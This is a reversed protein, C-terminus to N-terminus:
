AGGTAQPKFFVTMMGDITIEGLVKKVEGHAPCETEYYKMDEMSAFETKNVFTYGETRPGDEAPGAVMSLIYPSGNRQNDAAMKRCQELFRQQDEAKPMKFMTVRHVRDAVSIYGRIQGNKVIKNSVQFYCSSRKFAFM